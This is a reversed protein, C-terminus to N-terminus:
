CATLHAILQDAYAHSQPLVRPVNQLVSERTMGARRLDDSCARCLAEIEVIGIELHFLLGYAHTGARFAQVPYLESSALCVAGNPLNMGEGHWQFADFTPLFKQFVPDTKGGDCVQIPVPGIELSPGPAVQAGLAKALLQAGLCVGLIPRKREVCARIFAIEEALWREPDNASMPGGMIVLVDPPDQPVGEQPVLCIQVQYDRRMLASRFVGPGEFAVHQLCLARKM